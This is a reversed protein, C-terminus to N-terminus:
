PATRGPTGPAAHAAGPPVALAARVRQRLAAGLRENMAPVFHGNPLLNEPRGSDVIEDSALWPVGLRDLEPGLARALHDAYGADELLLVVPRTGDARCGAVFAAVLARLVRLNESDERFGHRDHIRALHLRQQRQAWARRLARALVSRDLWSARWLSPEFWADDRVLEAEWARERAPDALTARLDALSRVYPGSSSLRGSADVRYRPYTYPPPSEFQWTAATAADIGRVSSALVGLIAVDAHVRARDVQWLAFGQSPPAAPGGRKRLVLTSDQREMAEAAQFSFSQGYVAVLTKGAGAQEIALPDAAPELWGITATPASAADTPRVMRRLKAEISNGFDFYQALEGPPVRPDSPMRFALGTALDALVLFALTWAAAALLDRKSAHM